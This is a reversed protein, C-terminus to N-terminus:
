IRNKKEKSLTLIQLDNIIQTTEFYLPDSIPPDFLDISNNSSDVNKNVSNTVSPTVSETNKQKNNNKCHESFLDALIQNLINNEKKYNTFNKDNNLSTSSGDKELGDEELNDKDIRANNDVFTDYVLKEGLIYEQLKRYKSRMDKLKDVNDLLFKRKKYQGDFYLMIKLRKYNKIIEHKRKENEIFSFDYEKQM